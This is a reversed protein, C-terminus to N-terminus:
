PENTQGWAVVGRDPDFAVLRAKLAKTGLLGAFGIPQEGHDQLVFAVRQGWELAALHADTLQVENAGMEGGMNSWTVVHIKKISSRCNKLGSEFLVLDNAGTDVLIGLRVGHIDLDVIAYPLGRRYPITAFARDIPGFSIMRLQYDITFPTQGLLDLGIMADVRTGLAKAAFSLDRIVVPLEAAQVPGLQVNRAVARGAGVWKNFVSVRGTRGLLHLKDALRKDLVSPSAGTDLIFNLKEIGEISGQVVIAYGRYLQFIVENPKDAAWCTTSVLAWSMLAAALRSLRM